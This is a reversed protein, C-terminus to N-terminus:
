EKEFQFSYGGLLADPQAPGVLEVIGQVDSFGHALQALLARRILDVGEVLYEGHVVPHNLLIKLDVLAGPRHAAFRLPPFLVSDPRPRRIGPTHLIISFLYKSNVRSM